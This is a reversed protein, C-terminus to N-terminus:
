ASAGDRRREARAKLGAAEMDLYRRTLGASLRGALAGVLGRQEIGMRVVTGGGTEPTLRHWALALGGPSRQRWTWSVGPQVDVVEWVLTPLRPQSIRFRRGTEIPTGDLPEVGRVSATWEPWREVDSYVAWVDGPPAEIRVSAETKM